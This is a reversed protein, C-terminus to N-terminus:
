LYKRKTEWKDKLSKKLHREHNPKETKHLWTQWDKIKESKASSFRGVALECIYGLKGRWLFTYTLCFCALQNAFEKGKGGSCM